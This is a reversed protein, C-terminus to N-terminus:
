GVLTDEVLLTAVRAVNPGRVCFRHSTAELDSRPTRTTMVVTSGTEDALKNMADLFTPSSKPDLWHTPVAIYKPKPESALVERYCQRLAIGLEDRLAGASRGSFLIAEHCVLVFLSFGPMQVCHGQLLEPPVCGLEQIVLWGLLSGVEEGAPYMKVATNTLELRIAEALNVVTQLPTSQGRVCGDVGLLVPPPHAGRDLRNVCSQLQGIASTVGSLTPGFQNVCTTVLGAPTVLMAGTPGIFEAVDRLLRQNYVENTCHSGSNGRNDDVILRIIEASHASGEDATSLWRCRVPQPPYGAFPDDPWDDKSSTVSM